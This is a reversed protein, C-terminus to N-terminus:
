RTVTVYGKGGSVVYYPSKTNTISRLALYITLKSGNAALINYPTGNILVSDGLPGKKGHTYSGIVKEWDKSLQKIKGTDIPIARSLVQYRAAGRLILPDM